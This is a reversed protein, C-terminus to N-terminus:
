LGRKIIEYIENSIDYVNQHKQNTLIVITIGDQKFRHVVCEYNATSGHHSHEIIKEDKWDCRGLPAQINDGDKAEVSLAKVSEKSVVKFGEFQEFWTAMDSATSNFLLSKVSM